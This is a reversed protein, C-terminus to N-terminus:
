QVSRDYRGVAMGILILIITIVIMLEILTFGAGALRSRRKMSAPKGTRIQSLM